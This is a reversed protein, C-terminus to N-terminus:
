SNKSIDQVSSVPKQQVEANPTKAYLVPTDQVSPVPTHQRVLRSETKKAAAIKAKHAKLQVLGRERRKYYSPPKQEHFRTGDWKLFDLTAPDGNFREDTLRVFTAIGKGDVGLRGATHLRWFGYHMAEKMLSLGKNNSVGTLKAIVRASVPVAKQTTRNYSRKVMVVALKAHPRMAKFAPSDAVDHYVVSCPGRLPNKTAVEDYRKRRM